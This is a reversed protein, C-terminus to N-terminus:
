YILTPTKWPAFFVNLKESLNFKYHISCVALDLEKLVEDPLDLKGDELIDVEISKLITFGNFKENLKNIIKIQEIFHKKNLGPGVSFHLHGQIDKNFYNIETILTKLTAEIEGYNERLEPEIYSIGFLEYFEKETKRAIEKKDKKLYVM